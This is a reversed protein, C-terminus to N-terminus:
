SDSTASPNRYAEHESKMESMMMKEFEVMHCSTRIEHESKMNMNPNTRGFSQGSIRRVKEGFFMRRVPDLADLVGWLIIERNGPKSIHGSAVLWSNLLEWVDPGRPARLFFDDKSPARDPATYWSSSSQDIHTDIDVIGNEKPLIKTSGTTETTSCAWEDLNMMMMMMMMMMKLPLVCMQEGKGQNMNFEMPVSYSCRRVQIPCDRTWGAPLSSSRRCFIVHPHVQLVRTPTSRFIVRRSSRLVPKDRIQSDAFPKERVACIPIHSPNGSAMMSSALLVRRLSAVASGYSVYFSSLPDSKQIRNKSSIVSFSSLRNTPKKSHKKFAEEKLSYSSQIRSKWLVCVGLKLFGAM